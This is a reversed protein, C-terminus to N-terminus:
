IVAGATGVSRGLNIHDTGAARPNAAFATQIANANPKLAPGTQSVQTIKASPTKQLPKADAPAAELKGDLKNDATQPAPSEGGGCGFQTLSLLGAAIMMIGHRHRM